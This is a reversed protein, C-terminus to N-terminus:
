NNMAVFSRKNLPLPVGIAIGQDTYFLDASNDHAWFWTPYYLPLAPMEYAYLEQIEGLLKKREQEGTEGVQQQMLANLKTNKTYRSSTFSKGGIFRNVSAPDGGLGGHGSLALDFKWNKIMADLTKPDLSRLTIKIGALALQVKILEAEREGPHGQTRQGSGSMLLEFQLLKGDKEFFTGKKVYGLSEIIHNARNPDYPDNDTVRSFWRNDSPLLGNGGALAFGRQCTDVFAQRDIAAALAHRFQRNALIGKKHNMFMKAVWDHPGALITFGKQRLSDRIEGPVQGANIRGRQLATAYMEQRMKIFRIRDFIPRGMHYDSNAQYLYTGQQKNYDVVKYPGTGILADNGGFTVPSDINQMIHEPLIPMTAAICHLFPAYKKSLVLKVTHDNIVEVRKVVSGDVWKYPHKKIYEFTFAVDGASFPQGDHWRVGEQLIFLYSNEEKNFKWSSALDPVLGKADKWLLTDFALSMRIYGPGRPYHGYPSPMGWDGTQDAITYMPGTEAALTYGIGAVFLCCISLVTRLVALQCSCTKRIKSGPLRTLKNNMKSKEWPISLNGDAHIIPLVIWVSNRRM